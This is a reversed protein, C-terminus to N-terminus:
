GGENEVEEPPVYKADCEDLHKQLATTNKAKLLQETTEADAHGEMWAARVVTRLQSSNCAMQKAIVSLNLKM